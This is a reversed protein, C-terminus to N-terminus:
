LAGAGSTVTAVSPSSFFPPLLSPTAHASPSIRSPVLTAFVPSPLVDAIPVAPPVVHVFLHFLVWVLIPNMLITPMLFVPQVM